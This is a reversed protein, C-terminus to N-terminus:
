KKILWVSYLLMSLTSVALSISFELLNSSFISLLVIELLVFFLLGFSSKRIKNISICYLVLIYSLSAFAFGLGLIFLVNAGGMYRSDGFSLIRIVMEPFFFFLILAALSILSVMILSKKLLNQTKGRKEFKESSVPFMVKGIAFSAFLITKGILSVFSYMGAIEPSFVKKAIIVDASYVLVIATVAVLIPINYGYIGAFKQKKRRSKLVDKLSSFGIVFAGAAGLIVGGIAGYVGFGVIVLIISVIVKGLSEYVLNMGLKFFEKRGQIVGRIVPITFNYVILLCTLAIMFFDIKWFVSLFIGVLVAAIFAIISFLVGKRLGRYLLDKLKGANKGAKIAYRTIVTQIAENPIGFIYILSMLTALTGYGVPGLMRAMSFQFIYNFINFVGIMLFLIVSGKVLKDKRLGMIKNFM